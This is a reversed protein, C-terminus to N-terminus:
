LASLTAGSNASTLLSEKLFQTSSCALTATSMNLKQSETHPIGTDLNEPLFPESSENNKFTSVSSAALM